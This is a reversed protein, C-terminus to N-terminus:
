SYHEVIGEREEQPCELDFLLIASTKGGKFRISYIHFQRTEGLTIRPRQDTHVIGLPHWGFQKTAEPFMMDACPIQENRKGRPAMLFKISVVQGKWPKLESAAWSYFQVGYLEVFKVPPKDGARKLEEIIEDFFMTFVMGADGSSADNAARWYAAVLRRTGNPDETGNFFKDGQIMNRGLDYYYTIRELLKSSDDNKNKLEIAEKLDTRYKDRWDYANRLEFSDVELDCFLTNVFVNPRINVGFNEPIWFSNVEKVLRSVTDTAEENVLCKRDRYCEPKKFDALWPIEAATKDLYRGVAKLGNTNNPYASKLSDVAIQLQQSLFDIIRMEQRQPQGGGPPILLVVNELGSARARGLLSAVIGTNDNMSRIEIAKINGKLAVKSFKVTAPLESFNAIEERMNPYESSKVLQVFNGDFDRGLSLLLETPGALVGPSDIYAGEHINEWLQVDGWHRMLNCCVIYEGEELSACCVVKRGVVRGNIVQFYHALSEDPQCMVSKFKVGGSKALNVWTKQLLRRICDVLYPHFLLLGKTDAKLIEIVKDEYGSETEKDGVSVEADRDVKLYEAMLTISNYANALERCKQQMRSIIGDKELTEFSFWQFLMWGLKAKREEAEFVTGFLLKAEHNGLPLKNGKLSSLPIAMDYGTEDLHSNYSITGKGIWKSFEGVRFQVPVDPDKDGSGEMGNIPLGLFNMLKASAKAHSDGTDWHYNNVPDDVKLTDDTVLSGM